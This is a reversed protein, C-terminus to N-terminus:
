DYFPATRYACRVAGCRGSTLLAAAFGGAVVDVSDVTGLRSYYGTTSYGPTSSYYDPGGCAALGLALVGALVASTAGFKM